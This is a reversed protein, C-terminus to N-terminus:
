CCDAAGKLKSSPDVHFGKNTITYKSGRKLGPLNSQDCVRQENPKWELLNVDANSSINRYMRVKINEM